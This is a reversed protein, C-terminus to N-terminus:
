DGVDWLVVQGRAGAAACTLGDPAFALATVPGIKWDLAAVERGTALDWIRIAGDHSASFLRRGDPFVAIANVQGKHGGLVFQPEPGDPPFVYVDRANAAILRGDPLFALCRTRTGSPLYHFKMGGGPLELVAVEPQGSESGGSM